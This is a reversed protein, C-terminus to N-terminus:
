RYLRTPSQMEVCAHRVDRVVEFVCVATVWIVASLLYVGALLVALGVFVRWISKDSLGAFVALVEIFM